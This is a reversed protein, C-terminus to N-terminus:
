RGNKPTFVIDNKQDPLPKSHKEGDLWIEDPIENKFALCKRDTKDLHKCDYCIPREFIM